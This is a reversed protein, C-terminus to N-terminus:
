ERLEAMKPIELTWLFIRLNYALVHFQLHVAIAAFTRADRGQGRQDM